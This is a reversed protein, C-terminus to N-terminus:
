AKSPAFPNMRVRFTLRKMVVKAENQASEECNREEHGDRPKFTHTLSHRAVMKHFLCALACLFFSLSSCAWIRQLGDLHFLKAWMRTKISSSSRSKKRMSVQFFNFSSPFSCRVWAFSARYRQVYWAYVCWLISYISSYIHAHVHTNSFQLFSGVEFGTCTYTYGYVCMFIYAYLVRLFNRMWFEFNSSNTETEYPLFAATTRQKKYNHTLWDSVVVLVVVDAVVFSHIFVSIQLSKSFFNFQFKPFQVISTRVQLVIDYVLPFCYFAFRQVCLSRFSISSDINYLQVIEFSIPHKPM